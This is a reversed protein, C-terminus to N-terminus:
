GQYGYGSGEKNPEGNAIRVGASRGRRIGRAERRVRMMTTAATTATM